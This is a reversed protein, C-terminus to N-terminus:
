LTVHLRLFAAPRGDFAPASLPVEVRVRKFGPLQPHIEEATEYGTTSLDQWADASLLDAKWQLGYNGGPIGEERRPYYFRLAGASDSRTLEVEASGAPPARFPAGGLAFEQLASRGNGDPDALWDNAGEAESPAPNAYHRFYWIKASPRTEAYLAAIDEATLARLYIRVDDLRGAFCRLASGDHINGITIDGGSSTNIATTGPQGGVYAGTAPAGNLYGLVDNIQAGAPIVVACHIWGAGRVDTVTATSFNMGGGNFEARLRYGNAHDLNVDCRAGYDTGNVAGWSVMTPRAGSTQTTNANMWFVITRASTGLIGKQGALVIEDDAGDFALAGGWMGPTWGPPSSFNRLTGLPRGGADAATTGTTEDLPLWITIADSLAFVDVTVSATDTDAGDSITYEFADTGFFGQLPTYRIQNSEIAATGGEPETVATVALASPTGDDTDNGLVPIWVPTGAGSASGTTSASDDQAVPPSPPPEGDTHFASDPIATKAISASSWSLSLAPTGAAAHRYGLTFPHKGAKLNVSASIEAGGTYSFDADLVQMDHLRLFAGTDTTLYFTYTGDAPVNLYGKFEIGVHTDRTRVSVDPRASEGSAAEALGSFSPVWPYDGEFARWAVGPRVPAPTLPPVLESDYPRAATPNPRRVRLVADKFAQQTPVGGSGATLPTTEKPDAAIDYILFDVAHSTTNRRVGKYDGLHIIQQQNWSAGRHSVEFDAYSPTSGSVSYEIYVLGDRQTGSGTLSPVLSVGDCRAPPPVGSLEAFTAMWDQFQSAHGSVRGAPIAAPWRVLAPMRVGAEWTDRKIGDMGAYSRFFRPDQVVGTWSGEAHPGNDSTFVVLTDDGLGLDDLLQLLDGVADDVRRVMTAHRKNANSWGSQSAYDPHIWADRTGSATNIMNGSTGNWQLGGTLGGGAPYAQTPVELAAHPATFALYLFFPQDPATHHQDAIWKKARAAWLDTSYCLDLQSTVNATNEWVTNGGDPDGADAPDEKPYHRHGASHDLYGFFFDFGRRTPFSPSDPDGAKEPGGQLGWKGIAATAYGAERLVTGLTHHDELVKDFQNDRVNSHGQHVGLLLSARTPACVPAPCYHRTLIAGQAAMADLHPTDLAPLGADRRANQHLIGLDGYGLDDTLIFIINPRPAAANSVAAAVCAGATWVKMQLARNM